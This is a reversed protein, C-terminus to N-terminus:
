LVCVSCAARMDKKEGARVSANVCVQWRKSSKKEESPEALSQWVTIARASEKWEATSAVFNLWSTDTVCNVGVVVSKWGSPGTREVQNRQLAWGAPTQSM